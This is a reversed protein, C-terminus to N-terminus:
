MTASMSVCIAVCPTLSVCWSTEFSRLSASCIRAGSVGASLQRWECLSHALSLLVVSAARGSECMDKESHKKLLLLFFFGSLFWVVVAPALMTMLTTARRWSASSALTGIYYKHTHTSRVTFSYTLTKCHPHTSAVSATEWLCDMLMWLGTQSVAVSCSGPSCVTVALAHAWM